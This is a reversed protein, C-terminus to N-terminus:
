PKFRLQKVVLDLSTLIKNNLLDNNNDGKTKM